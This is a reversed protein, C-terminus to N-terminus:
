SGSSIDRGKWAWGKKRGARITAWSFVALFFVLYLPYMLAVHWAFAGVRRVQCAMQGAFAGYIALGMGVPATQQVLTLVLLAAGLIQGTIWIMVAALILGPTRRAGQTFSKGWGRAMEAWGGPYLRVGVAGGGGCLRLRVGQSSLPGALSFNELIKDKVAAHGGARFYDERGVVLCPGFLGAPKVRDGLLTFASMGATQLLNFYASFQEQWTGPHHFPSISLAGRERGWADLLRRLGGPELFTDADLFVLVEGHAQEAGQQCAWPKGLWGAPLEQSVLVQAGGRRAVDATRDRSHDDVVIIQDPKPDQSVLSSLLAPLNREEDRAPVIVSIRPYRTRKPDLSCRPVRWLIFWGALWGIGALILWPTM